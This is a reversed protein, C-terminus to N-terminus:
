AAIRLPISATMPGAFVAFERDYERNLTSGFALNNKLLKLCEHTLWDTFEVNVALSPMAPVLIIPKPVWLLRELDLEAGIAAGAAGALLRRLFERRSPM